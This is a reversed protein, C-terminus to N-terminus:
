QRCYLSPGDSEAKEEQDPEIQQQYHTAPGEEDAYMLAEKAEGDYMMQREKGEDAHYM